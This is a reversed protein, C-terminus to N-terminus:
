TCQESFQVRDFRLNRLDDPHITYYITGGDGWMWGPNREDTDIQLLLLWDKAAQELERTRVDMYRHSGTIGNRALESDLFLRDCIERPWGFMRHVSRTGDDLSFRTPSIADQLAHIVVYGDEYNNYFDYTYHHWDPITWEQIFSLRCPFSEFSKSDLPNRRRELQRGADVYMVRPTSQLSSDVWGWKTFSSYWECFFYLLGQSPLRACAPFGQLDALNIQAIFALPQEEYNESQTQKDCHAFQYGLSKWTPWPMGRPLDPMGGFKSSGLPADDVPVRSPVIRVAEKVTAAIRNVHGVM